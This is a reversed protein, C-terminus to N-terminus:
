IFAAAIALIAALVFCAVSWQRYRWGRASHYEPGALASLLWVDRAADPKEPNTHRAALVSFIAGVFGLLVCVAVIASSWM